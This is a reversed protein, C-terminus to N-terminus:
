STFRSAWVPLRAAVFLGVEAGVPLGIREAVIATFAAANPHVRKGAEWLWSTISDLRQSDEPFADKIAENLSSWAPDIRDKFFSNGWGPLKVGSEIASHIAENPRAYLVSRASTIPGHREGLTSVAAIVAQGFSVGGIRAIDVAANSLNANNRASEEHAVFLMSLLGRKESPALGNSYCIDLWSDFM